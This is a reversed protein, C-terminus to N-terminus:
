WWSPRVAAVTGVPVPGAGDDVAAVTGDVVAQVSPGSM